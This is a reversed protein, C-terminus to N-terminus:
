HTLVSKKRQPIDEKQLVSITVIINETPTKCNKTLWPPDGPRFTKEDNPIFNKAINTTVENLLEALSDPNDIQAIKGEWDYM